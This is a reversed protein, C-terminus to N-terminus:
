DRGLNKPGSTVYVHVCGPPPAESPFAATGPDRSFMGDCNERQLKVRTAVLDKSIKEAGAVPAGEAAASGSGTQATGEAAARRRLVSPSTHDGESGWSARTGRGVRGDKRAGAGGPDTDQRAPRVPARARATAPAMDTTPM